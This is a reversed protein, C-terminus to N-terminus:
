LCHLAEGQLSFSPIELALCCLNPMLFGRFILVHGVQYFGHLTFQVPTMLGGQVPLFVLGSLSCSM